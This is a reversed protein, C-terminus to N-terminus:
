EESYGAQLLVLVRRRAARVQTETMGLRKAVLTVPLREVFLQHAADLDAPALTEPARLLAVLRALGDLLLKRAEYRSIGFHSAVQRESIRESGFRLLLADRSRRDLADLAKRVRAVDAVAEAPGMAEPDVADDDLADHWHANRALWRRAYRAFARGVYGRLTGKSPDFRAFTGQWEDIYFDHVVDLGESALRTHGQGALRREIGLLFPILEAFRGTPDEKV